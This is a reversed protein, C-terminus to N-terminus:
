FGSQSVKGFATSVKSQELAVGWPVTVFKDCNRKSGAVIIRGLKNSRSFMEGFHINRVFYPEQVFFVPGEGFGPAILSDQEWNFFGM